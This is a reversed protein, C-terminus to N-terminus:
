SGTPRYVSVGASAAAETLKVNLTAIPVGLRVALELYSADYAPLNEARGLDLTARLGHIASQEDIAIPLKTLLEVFSASEARTIRGRREGVLLINAVEFSWLPPVVARALKLSRLVELSYADQEDPFCWAMTVSNDLVFQAPASKM